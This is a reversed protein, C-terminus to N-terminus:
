ALERNEHSSFTGGFGTCIGCLNVRGHIKLVVEEAVSESNLDSVTVRVIM